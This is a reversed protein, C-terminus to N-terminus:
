RLSRYSPEEKYNCTKGNHNKSLPLQPSGYIVLSDNLRGKARLVWRVYTIRARAEELNIHDPAPTRVSFVVRFDILRLHLNFRPGIRAVLHEDFGPGTDLRVHGGSKCAM